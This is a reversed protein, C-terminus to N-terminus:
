SCHEVFSAQQHEAAFLHQVSMDVQRKDHRLLMGLNFCSMFHQLYPAVQFMSAQLGIRGADIGIHLGKNMLHRERCCCAQM